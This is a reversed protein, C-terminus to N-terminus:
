DCVRAGSWVFDAADWSHQAREALGLRHRLVLQSQGFLDDIGASRKHRVREGLGREGHAAKVDKAAQFIQV